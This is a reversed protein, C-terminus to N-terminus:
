KMRSGQGISARPIISYVATIVVQKCRTIIHRQYSDQCALHSWIHSSCGIAKSLTPSVSVALSMRGEFIWPKSRVSSNVALSLRKSRIQCDFRGQQLSDPSPRESPDSKSPTSPLLRTSMCAVVGSRQAPVNKKTVCGVRSSSRNRSGIM